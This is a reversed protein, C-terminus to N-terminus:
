EDDEGEILAELIALVLALAPTAAKATYTAVCKDPEHWVTAGPGSRGISISFHWGDSRLFRADFLAVAADLSGYYASQVIGWQSKPMASGLIGWGYHPTNGAKVKERLAILAKKRESM